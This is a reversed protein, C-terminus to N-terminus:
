GHTSGPNEAPRQLLNSQPARGGADTSLTPDPGGSLAWRHTLTVLGREHDIAVGSGYVDRPQVHFTAVQDLWLTFEVNPRTIGVSLQYRGGTFPLSDLILDIHGSGIISEVFYGSIPMTSLRCLEMGYNDSISAVFAPAFIREPAEYDLRITVSEGTGIEEVTAGVSNLFRIDTIRIGGRGRTALLDTRVNLGSTGVQSSNGRLYQDVATAPDGAFTVRGRALVLARSCLHQIAAMNHSVFLVTRGKRAVDGMKGLSKRQFAADGVSLVEDVILVEPELHAAVSFALRTYMGSSYRKVPTDLFQEIDAFEVIEDFRKAIDRKSMGIIAGNLYINERGTLEPHFGTGVELLSGVRGHIQARGATPETIQSLIKLLTSKGAGNRGIVGLVEGHKLEFSVDRLAWFEETNSASGRRLRRLPAQVAGMVSDRLTGYQEKESGIRYRKGLNEVRIAVDSM